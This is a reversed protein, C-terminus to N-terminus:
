AQLRREESRLAANQRVPRPYHDAGEAGNRGDAGSSGPLSSIYAKEFQTVLLGRAERLLHELWAQPLLLGEIDQINIYEPLNVPVSNMHFSHPLDALEIRSTKCLLIAREIVNILERVNGPWNYRM